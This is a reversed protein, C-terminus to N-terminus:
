REVEPPEPLPQWHTVTGSLKQGIGGHWKETYPDFYVILIRPSVEIEKPFTVYGLVAEHYPPSDTRWTM